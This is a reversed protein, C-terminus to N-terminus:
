IKTCNFKTFGAQDVTVVMEDFLNFTTGTTYASGNRTITITLGSPNDFNDVRFPEPTIYVFPTLTQFNLMMYFSDLDSEINSVDNQLDTFITCGTLDSCDFTSGTPSVSQAINTIITELSTGGSFYENFYATDGSTSGEIIVDGEFTTNNIITGGSFTASSGTLISEDIYEILSDCDLITDCTLFNQPVFSGTEASFIIPDTLPIYCKNYTDAYIQLDIYAGATYDMTGDNVWEVPVPDTDQVDFPYNGDVLFRYLDNLILHCDSNVTLWNERGKEIIDFCYFRLNFINQNFGLSSGPVLTVYLVPFSQEGTTIISMNDEAEFYYRKIQEHSTAFASLLQNLKILSNNGM